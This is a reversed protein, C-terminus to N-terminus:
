KSGEHCPTKRTTIRLTKTPMRVLGKVRLNKEKEARILDDCVKELSKTNRSTLTIKIQHIAVEPELSTKGSLWSQPAVEQGVQEQALAFLPSDPAPAPTGPSWQLPSRM